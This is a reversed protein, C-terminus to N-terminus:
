IYMGNLFMDGEQYDDKVLVKQPVLMQGGIKLYGWDMVFENHSLLESFGDAAGGLCDANVLVQITAVYKEQAM